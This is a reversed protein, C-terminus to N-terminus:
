IGCKSFGLSNHRKMGVCGVTPSDWHLPHMIQCTILPLCLMSAGVCSYPCTRFLNVSLLNIDWCSRQGPVVFQQCSEPCAKSNVFPGCQILSYQARATFNSSIAYFDDCVCQKLPILLLSATSWTGTETAKRKLQDYLPKSNFGSWLAFCLFTSAMWECMFLLSYLAM